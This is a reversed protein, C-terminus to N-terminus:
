RPMGGIINAGLRGLEFLDWALGAIFSKVFRM